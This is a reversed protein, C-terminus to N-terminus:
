KETKEDSTVNGNADKTIKEKTKMSKKGKYGPADHKTTKELTTETGGNDMAKTDKETTTADSTKGMGPEDSSSKKEVKMKAHKGDLKKETKTETKMTSTDDARALTSLGAVGFMCVAALLKKM